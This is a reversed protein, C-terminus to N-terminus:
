DQALDNKLGLKEEKRLKLTYASVAERILDSVPQRFGNAFHYLYEVQKEPLRVSVLKSM